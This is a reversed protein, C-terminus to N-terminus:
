QVQLTYNEGLTSVGVTTSVAYTYNGVVLITTTRGWSLDALETLLGRDGVREDDPFHNSHASRAFAASLRSGSPVKDEDTSLCSPSFPRPTYVPIEIWRSVGYKRLTERGKAGSSGLSHVADSLSGANLSDLFSTISRCRVGPSTKHDM